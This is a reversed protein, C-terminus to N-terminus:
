LMKKIQKLENILYNIEKQMKESHNSYTDSKQSGQNNANELAELEIGAAITSLAGGFSLICGSVFALRAILLDQSNSSQELNKHNGKM